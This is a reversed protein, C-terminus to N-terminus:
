PRGPALLARQAEYRVSQAPDQGAIAKLDGEVQSRVPWAALATVAQVRVEESGDNRARELVASLTSEAQDPLSDHSASVAVGSFIERLLGLSRARVSSAPSELLATLRGYLAPTGARLRDVEDLATTLLYPNDSALLGNLGEIQSAPDKTSLDVLRHLAELFTRSGEAPVMIRGEQGLYLEFIDRNKEKQRVQKDPVLFLVEEQGNPLVIPEVGPPRNYNYDRFAIRLRPAPPTGKLAQRVDVVAFRLTGDHVIVDVVLSARAIKQFLNLPRAPESNLIQAALPECFRLLTATVLIALVPVGPWRTM